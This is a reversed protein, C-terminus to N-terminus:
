SNPSCIANPGGRHRLSGHSRISSRQGSSNLTIRSLFSSDRVTYSYVFQQPTAPEYHYEVLNEQGMQPVGSLYLGTWPGSRWLPQMGAWLFEEPVGDMDVGLVYDGPAPDSLSTWATLNINFGGATSRCFRMGPLITDTPVDYSQWAQYGNGSAERVIFNGDDRIQAVPNSVAVSNAGSSWFETGSFNDKQM